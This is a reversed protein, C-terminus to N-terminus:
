GVQIKYSGYKIYENFLTDIVEEVSGVDSSVAEMFALQDEKKATVALM